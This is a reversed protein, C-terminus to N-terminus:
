AALKDVAAMFEGLHFPKPYFDVNPHYGARLVSSKEPAGSLLLVPTNNGHRRLREVFELGSMGELRYDSIILSFAEHALAALADEATHVACISEIGISVLIAHLSELAAPDDDVVLVSQIKGM